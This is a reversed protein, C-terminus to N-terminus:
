VLATFMVATTFIPLKLDTISPVILWIFLIVIITVICHTQL